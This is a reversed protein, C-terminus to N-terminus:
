QARRRKMHYVVLISLSVFGTILSYYSIRSLGIELNNSELIATSVSKMKTPNGTWSEIQFEQFYEASTLYLTATKLLQDTSLSSTTENAIFRQIADTMLPNLLSAEELFLLNGSLSPHQNLAISKISASILSWEQTKPDQQLAYDHGKIHNTFLLYENQSITINEKALIDNQSLEEESINRGDIALTSNKKSESGEIVGLNHSFLFSLSAQSFLAMRQDIDDGKYWSVTENVNILDTYEKEIHTETAEDWRMESPLGENIIM